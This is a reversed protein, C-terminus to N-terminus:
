YMITSVHKSYSIHLSFIYRVGLVVGQGGTIVGTFPHVYWKSVCYLFLSMHRSFKHVSEEKNIYHELNVLSM